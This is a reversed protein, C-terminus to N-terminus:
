EMNLSVGGHGATAEYICHMMQVALHVSQLAFLSYSISSTCRVYLSHLVPLPAIVTRVLTCLLITDEERWIRECDTYSHRQYGCGSEQQM